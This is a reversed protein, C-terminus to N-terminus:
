NCDTYIYNGVQRSTCNFSKSTPTPPIYSQRYQNLMTNYMQWYVQAQQAKVQEQLLRNRELQIAFNADIERGPIDPRVFTFYFQSGGSLDFTLYKINTRAGSAWIVNASVVLKGPTGEPRDPPKIIRTFPTYGVAVGWEYFTAGPPDSYYTVAVKNTACGAPLLIVFFLLAYLNKM